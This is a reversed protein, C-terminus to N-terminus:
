RVDPGLSPFPTLAALTRSPLDIRALQYAGGQRVIILLTNSDRQTTGLVTEVDSLVETYGQGGVDSIALTQRDGQDLQGDDNTDAAVVGYLFWAVPVVEEDEEGQEPFSERYVFVQDNTPLLQRITEDRQNLFILNHTTEPTYGPSSMSFGSSARATVDRLIPAVLYDTGRIPAFGGLAKKPAPTPTPPPGVAPSTGPSSCAALGLAFALALLTTRLPHSSAPHSRMTIESLTTAV